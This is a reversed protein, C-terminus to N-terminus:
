LPEVEIQHHFELVAYVNFMVHRRYEYDLAIVKQGSDRDFEVSLDDRTVSPSYLSGIYFHKDLAQWIAVKSMSGLEPNEQLSKLADRVAYAEYYGPYLKMGLLVFFGAVLALASLSFISWGAQRQM